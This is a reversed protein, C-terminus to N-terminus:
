RRWGRMIWFRGAYNEAASCDDSTASMPACPGSGSVPDIDDHATVLNFNARDPAQCRLSPLGHAPKRQPGSLSVYWHCLNPDASRFEVVRAAVLDVCSEARIGPTLLAIAKLVAKPNAYEM